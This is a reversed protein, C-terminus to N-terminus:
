KTEPIYPCFYSTQELDLFWHIFSYVFTMLRDVSDPEQTGRGLELLSVSPTGQGQSSQCVISVAWGKNYEGGGGRRGWDKRSLKVLMSLVSTGQFGGKLGM